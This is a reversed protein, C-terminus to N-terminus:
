SSNRVREVPGGDRAAAFDLATQCEPINSAALRTLCMQRERSASLLGGVTCHTYCGIRVTALRVLHLRVYPM